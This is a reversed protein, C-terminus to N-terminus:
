FEIENATLGVYVGIGLMILGMGKTIWDNVGNIGYIMISVSLIMLMFSAMTKFFANDIKYSAILFAFSFLIFFYMIPFYTTIPTTVDAASVLPFIFLFFLPLVLLLTRAGHKQFFNM